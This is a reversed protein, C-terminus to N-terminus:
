SAHEEWRTMHDLPIDKRSEERGSPWRITVRDVREVAGLGFHLRRDAVSLYSGGGDVSRVWRRGGAEVTVEAGIADRNPAQGRLDLGLWHGCSTSDNWLVVSPAKHHTIVIDLDGDEDLDGAALGRGMHLSTFYPGARATVNTFRGGSQGLWLIPPNEYPYTQSPERRIQGNTVLFDLWGDENFDELAIGWGTLPRSDSGIGAQFTEDQYYRGGGAIAHARWLTDHEGFFHTIIVDQLGDGDTDGHAIGMNAESMGLGNLDIGVQSAIEEFTGDGRNRWLANAEADNAVLIDPRHDGDFDAVLVGMGRARDVIGAEATVDRFRGNGENRYLVDPLGEFKEPPGYEPGGDATHAFPAHAPDFAFYNAVFLDLDGDGDYDFFASGLSWLSCGVGAAATVDTFHGGDNRWLTNSGYRTVYVDPDGDSDYDAVALGQGYGKSTLGWAQSVDTFHAQGDNRLLIDAPASDSDVTGAPLPVGQAFFLDLDGDGDVDLLAVGGGTVENPWAAGSEGREYHFPLSEARFRLASGGGAEIM